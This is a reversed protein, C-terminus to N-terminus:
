GGRVGGSKQPFVLFACLGPENDKLELEGGHLRAVAAALSLGLGSGPKSRSAELRVFRERVRQRDAEKIGAGCDCVGVKIAGDAIMVQITIMGSQSPLGYKLANDILNSLAQSILERNGRMILTQPAEVRLVAAMDEAAPEYLEAIDRAIDAIDLEVFTQHAAGSEVRAILLLANFTEILGDADVITMELASRFRETDEERLVTEVRTRLRTLPTKLDHAINDSVEKMSRMLQEIRDLMANLNQALRDLEDGSGTEAVRESLDGEMITRSTASIDDIRTLIRRSMIVGGLLGVVITLGVGWTLASTIVDQFRRWDEIDKGVLLVFGDNLPVIRALALHSDSAAGQQRRYGFEVWQERDPLTGSPGVINGAIQRGRIDVLLYIANGSGLSRQEVAAALRLIGGDQYQEVLGQMDAQIVDRLQRALLVTTNYYIYVIVLTAALVFAGVFLITLRFTSTRVLKVLSNM